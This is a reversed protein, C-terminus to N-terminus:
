GAAVPRANQGAMKRSRAGKGEGPHDPHNGVLFLFKDPVPQIPEPAPIPRNVEIRLKPLGSIPIRFFQRAIERALVEALLSPVGNGIQKQVSNRNGVFVLGDPFTQLKAMERFSLRRNEWHFPGIAPGPQAQITWSPRNKALKLLFTWFRTRWGFLPLGGKRNTHWQYNEGEPISPLLDAWRGKVKLDEDGSEVKLQGIADWATVHEVESVLNLTPQSNDALDSLGHTPAPFQFVRGERNAVLFFRTRIQPVGYDAANLVRWSLRYHTGQRRNIERTMREILLFGEEKGSYSIGHVNELMFARPLLVEVCRMFEHLTGARPDELRRSDGNVWYGSKSFPQCPPGGVVLDVEGPDLNPAALLEDNSVNEISECIVPWHRNAEITKCCDRDNEIALTVAFGAAEFGYDLGGAGTFLSVLRLPGTTSRWMLIEPDYVEQMVKRNVARAIDIVGNRIIREAVEPWPKTEAEISIHVNVEGRAATGWAKQGIGPTRKPKTQLIRIARRASIVHFPKDDVMSNLDPWHARVIRGVFLDEADKVQKGTHRKLLDWVIAEEHSFLKPLASDLLKILDYDVSIVYLLNPTSGGSELAAHAKYAPIPMCDEPDLGVLQAAHEFRTGANKVNIPLEVDNEWLTFDRLSHGSGRDERYDLGARQAKLDDLHELFRQETICAPFLKTIPNEASGTKERPQLLQLFGHKRAVPIIERSTKLTRVGKDCLSRAAAEDDVGQTTVDLYAKAFAVAEWRSDGIVELVAQATIKELVEEM